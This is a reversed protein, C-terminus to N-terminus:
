KTGTPVKQKLEEFWNLVVNIQMPATQETAKLMLFRQGDPSVDYDPFSRPTPVYTGEFLVKPKGASFTGETTVDVAMMKNGARFFLEGGRPNWVPETGGDTSVQWKGGPGPYPRVYIELRGSEDSTYAIFHGDPSFRPATEISPTRVFPQPKGDKLPLTYIDYGTRPNIEMFALVQGDPSWSGPVNNTSLESSTLAEAAGSGDAPQWFLRNGSGKFVIRKGDPTWLPDVNATGEFTLRTLTDRGLDYLWIQSDAEEIGAAVRKGDPSVRPLVYNHAPAPVPQEAGKRDVWVLKFQAAQASNPVYVLSGTSSVDYQASGGAFLVGGIVPVAAGTIALGQPDFPAAMLNAGQAYVLHGSSAYRPQSGSQILERREGTTLSQAVLKTPAGSALVAFLVGKGGPLLDPERHSSEGKELRTLPQPNGGTDPIQQIPSTGNPVFAIM